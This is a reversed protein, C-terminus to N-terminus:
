VESDTDTEPPTQAARKRALERARRRARSAASNQKKLKGNRMDEMRWELYNDAM